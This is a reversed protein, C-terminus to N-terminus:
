AQGGVIVGDTASTPVGGKIRLFGTGADVWLHYAGLVLHASNWASSGSLNAITLNNGVGDTVLTMPADGGIYTRSLGYYSYDSSFVYQNNPNLMYNTVSGQSLYNASLVPPHSSDLVAPGSWNLFTAASECRNNNILLGPPGTTAPAATNLTVANTVGEFDNHTVRVGNAVSLSVGDTDFRVGDVCSNFSCNVIRTANAAGFLRVAGSVYRQFNLPGSAVTQTTSVNYTGTGGTGTGLSTIVTGGQTGSGSVVQGIALVGTSVATVTLVTGAISGTATAVIITAGGRARTTCGDIHTWFSNTSSNGITTPGLEVFFYGSKCLGIEVVCRVLRLNTSGKAQICGQVTTNTRHDFQLGEIVVGFNNYGNLVQIAYGTVAAGALLTAGYGTIKHSHPLTQDIDILWQTNLLYSGPPILITGGTFKIALWAAAFAAYSDAVGTPDAGFDLVSVSERVKTQVTRAVAGAGSQIWGLFTSGAPLALDQLWRAESGAPYALAYNFGIAGGGGTASTTSQFLNLQGGVTGAAYATASGYALLGAGYLANTGSGIQRYYFNNLDNLWAATVAPVSFDIYTTDAM